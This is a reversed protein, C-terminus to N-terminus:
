NGKFFQGCPCSTEGFGERECVRMCAALDKAGSFWDSSLWTGNGNSFEVRCQREMGKMAERLISRQEPRPYGAYLAKITEASVIAQGTKKAEDDPSSYILNPTQINTPLAELAIRRWEKDQYQLVVYPPNPRGWKNYAMCGMPSAVLYPMGDVIDLLMPLFNSNGIDKSFDDKWEITNSTGPQIFRLSQEIYAGRQGIEHRGGRVTSREVIIKKGDHLLVEEKWSDAAWASLATICLLSTIAGRALSKLRQAAPQKNLM